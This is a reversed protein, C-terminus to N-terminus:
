ARARIEARIDLDVRDDALGAYGSAGFAKRNLHGSLQIFLVSLDDPATGAPRSLQAKLTIKRTMGRLTLDGDIEAGESIRGRAGLRIKRSQFRVIPHNAADLLEPSKIAQTMFILGSSVNRIDATVTAESRTLRATDVTIDASAVQVTGTQRASGTTFIFAIKSTEPVLEYSQARAAVGTALSALGGAILVRRTLQISM